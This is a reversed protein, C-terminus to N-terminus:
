ISELLDVKSAAIKIKELRDIFRKGTISEEVDCKRIVSIMADCNEPLISAKPSALSQFKVLYGSAIALCKPNEIAQALDLGLKAGFQTLLNELIVNEFWVQVMAGNLRGSVQTSALEEILADMTLKDTYFRLSGKSHESKIISDELEQLWTVVFPALESIRAVVTQENLHKTPVLCYSNTNASPIINGASDKKGKYLCRVIRTGEPETIALQPDYSKFEGLVLSANIAITNSITNM